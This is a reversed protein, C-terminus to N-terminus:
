PAGCSLWEALDLREQATPGGGPPMNENTGGAREHIDEAEAQIQTLSTFPYNEAGAVGSTDSHCSTCHTSFFAEGFNGYTLETGGQPCDPLGNDGGGAGGEGDGGGGDCAVSSSGLALVFSLMIASRITM